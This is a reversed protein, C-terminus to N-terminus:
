VFALRYDFIDGVVINCDFNVSARNTTLFLTKFIQRIVFYVYWIQNSDNCQTNVFTDIYTYIQSKFVDGM